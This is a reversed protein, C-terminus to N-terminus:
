EAVMEKRSAAAAARRKQRWIFLLPVCQLVAMLPCATLRLREKEAEARLRLAELKAPFLRGVVPRALAGSLLYCASSGFAGTLFQALPLPYLAGALICLTFAPGALGKMAVYVAMFTATVHWWNAENGEITPASCLLWAVLSGHALLLGLASRKRIYMATRQCAPAFARHEHADGM